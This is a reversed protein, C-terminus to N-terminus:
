AQIAADAAAAARARAAGVADVATPTEATPTEPTLTEPTLTEPTLTEPTLPEPTLPEPTMESEPGRDGTDPLASESVVPERAAADVSEVETAVVEAPLEIAAPGVPSLLDGVEQEAAALDGAQEGPGSARTFQRFIRRASPAM